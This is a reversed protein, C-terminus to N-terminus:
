ITPHCDLVREIVAITESVRHSDNKKSAFFSKLQSEFEKTEMKQVAASLQKSLKESNGRVTFTVLKELSLDDILMAIDKLDSDRGSHLKMAILLERSAVRSNVFSSAGIINGQSSASKIEDFKWVGETQRCRVGDVLLDIFVPNNDITKRFRRTELGELQDQYQLSGSFGERSFISSFAALESKPIVVDCDVSYRPLRSYADVAYGGIVVFNDRYPYIIELIRLIEKERAAFGFVSM